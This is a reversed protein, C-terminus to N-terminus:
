AGSFKEITVATVSYSEACRLTARALHADDSAAARNM